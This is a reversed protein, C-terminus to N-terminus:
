LFRQSLRKQAGPLRCWLSPFALLASVFLDRNSLQLVSHLSYSSLHRPFQFFRLLSASLYRSFSVPGLGGPTKKYSHCVCSNYSVRSTLTAAFSSLTAQNEALQPLATLTAPFPTLPALIPLISPFSSPHSLHRNSLPQCRAGPIGLSDHFLRMFPNSNRANSCTRHKSATSFTPLPQTIPSHSTSSTPTFSAFSTFSFHSVHRHFSSTLPKPSSFVFFCLM